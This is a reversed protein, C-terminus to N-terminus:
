KAKVHSHRLAPWRPSVTTKSAYHPTGADSAKVKAASKDDITEKLLTLMERAKDCRKKICRKEKESAEHFCHLGDRMLKVYEEKEKVYRTRIDAEIKLMEVLRAKTLWDEFEIDDQLDRVLLTPM